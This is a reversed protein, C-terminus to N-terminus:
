TTTEGLLYTTTRVVLVVGVVVLPVVWPLRYRPLFRRALLALVVLVVVVRLV